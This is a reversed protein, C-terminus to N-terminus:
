LHYIQSMLQNNTLRVFERTMQVYRDSSGITFSSNVLQFTLFAGVMPFMVVSFM